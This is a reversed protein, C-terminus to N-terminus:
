FIGLIDSGILRLVFASFILLILGSLAAILLERGAQLRKPDGLSTMIMFGSYVIMLMAIGGAIGGGFWLMFGVTGVIGGTLIPVCGIATLISSGDTCLLDAIQGFSEAPVPLPPPTQVNGGASVSIFQTLATRGYVETATAQNRYSAGGPTSIDIYASITIEATAFRNLVIGCIVTQEDIDCTGTKNTEASIPVIAAPLVDTVAFSLGQDLNNVAKIVFTFVEGRDPTTKSVTKTLTLWPPEAAVVRRVRNYIRGGVGPLDLNPSIAGAPAYIHFGYPDLVDQITGDTVTVSRGELAVEYTGNPIGSIVYSNPAQSDRPELVSSAIYIEQGASNTLQWAVVSESQTPNDGGYLNPDYTYRSDFIYTANNLSVNQLGSTIQVDLQQRNDALIWPWLANYVPFFDRAADVCPTGAAPTSCNACVSNGEVGHTYLLIGQTGAIIELVIQGVLRNYLDDTSDLSPNGSVGSCVDGYAEPAAYIDIGADKWKEVHYLHKLYTGLYKEGHAYPYNQTVNIDALGATRSVSYPFSITVNHTILIPVGSFYRRAATTMSEIADFNYQEDTQYFGFMDQATFGADRMARFASDWGAEDVCAPTAEPDRWDCGLYLIHQKARGRDIMKQVLGYDSRLSFRDGAPGNGSHRLGFGFSPFILTYQSTICDNDPAMINSFSQPDGEAGGCSYWGYPPASGRPFPFDNLVGAPGGQAKVVPAPITFLSIYFLCLVFVSAIGLAFRYVLPNKMAYDTYLIHIAVFFVFFVPLACDLSVAIVSFVVSCIIGIL